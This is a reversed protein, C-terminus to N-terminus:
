CQAARKISGRGRNSNVPRNFDPVPRFAFSLQCQDCSGVDDAVSLPGHCEPCALLGALDVATKKRLRHWRRLAALGMSRIGKGGNGPVFQFRLSKYYDLTQNPQEFGTPLPM